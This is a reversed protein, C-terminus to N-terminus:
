APPIETFIKTPDIGEKRNRKYMWAVVLLGILIFAAVGIQSWIDTLELGVTLMLWFGVVFTIAGLVTVWPIGFIKHQFTSKEFLDPRTYPLFMAALGLPWIFFLLTFDEIALMTASLQVGLSDGLGVFVGILAFIGILHNAWTPAGRRNVEALKTPLMRDFAMAFMGRVGAMWIVMSTNLYWLFYGIGLVISMAASGFILAAYFPISPAAPTVGLLGQLKDANNYYLWSYNTIFNGGFAVQVAWANLMYLLGVAVIGILMGRMFSKRPTKVESGCFSIAEAGAYAWLVSLLMGQLAAGPPMMAGAIDLDKALGNIKDYMGAGYISDFAPAGAGVFFSIVAILTVVLPLYILVRLVWKMKSLGWLELLWLVVTLGLSIYLRIWPDALSEGISMLSANQTIQGAVQFSSAIPILGLYNVLGVALASGGGLVYTWNPIFGFLPHLVRSIVVYPSGSRPFSSAFIALVIVPFIWAILGVLFALVINGGPYVGPVKVTYYAMGSAAPGALTFLLVDWWSLERVLGSAKRVFVVTEESM